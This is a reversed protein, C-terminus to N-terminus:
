KGDQMFKVTNSHRLRADRVIKDIEKKLRESAADAVSAAGPDPPATKVSAHMSDMKFSKVDPSSSIIERYLQNLVDQNNEGALAMPALCQFLLFAATCMRGAMTVTSIISHNKM